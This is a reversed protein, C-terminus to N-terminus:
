DIIDRLFQEISLNLTELNNQNDIVLNAKGKKEDIDMQSALINEALQLSSKDRSVLREIQTERKAYVCVTLDVKEDLKKEFLLPVDYVIFQPSNLEEYAKKFESPLYAYIFDEISKKASPDAFVIERLKPFDISGNQFALPFHKSVFELTEPLTYINKVLKDADIVAINKKLLIDSVTSKGTGIGGTLGIIPVPMQYLRNEPNKTIWKSKLKKM